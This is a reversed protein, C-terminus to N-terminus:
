AQHPYRCIHRARLQFSGPLDTLHMGFKEREPYERYYISFWWSTLMHHGVGFANHIIEIIEAASHVGVELSTRGFEKLFNWEENGSGKIGDHDLFHAVMPRHLLSRAWLYRLTIVTRLAYFISGDHVNRLIEEKTQVQLYEPLNAKWTTLRPEISM